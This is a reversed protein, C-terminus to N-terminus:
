ISRIMEVGLVDYLIDKVWEKETYNIKQAPVDPRPGLLSM